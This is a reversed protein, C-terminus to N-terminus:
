GAWSWCRARNSRTTWRPRSRWSSGTVCPRSPRPGGFLYVPEYVPQRIVAAEVAPAYVPVTSKRLIQANGGFHDAHAHTNLVARVPAGLAAAARLIRNAATRDLGTDIVVLGERTRVLGSNVAGHLMTVRDTLRITEM